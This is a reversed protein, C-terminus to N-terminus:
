TLGFLFGLSSFIFGSSLSAIQLEELQFPRIIKNVQQKSSNYSAHLWFRFLSM